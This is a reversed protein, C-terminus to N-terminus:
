NESIKAELADAQKIIAAATAQDLSSYFSDVSTSEITHIKLYGVAWKLKKFDDDSLSPQIDLLAQNFTDQNSGDLPTNLGNDACGTMLLSCSIVLVTILKYVRMM